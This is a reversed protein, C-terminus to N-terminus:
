GGLEACRMRYHLYNEYPVEAPVGHDVTPIYGGRARMPPLIARLHRDIAHKSQALVRKDIGGVMVLEPYQRGLEVVDCGSAVEFPCMVDMGMEQYLPIVLVAYGDTDVQVFLHRQPDLQRARINTVLQQYYPLLFARIMEPSILPRAKYCIDEDIYLEDITVHEQHRATVADALELWTQLRAHILEPMDYFACLLREPGFLCRLCMYCGIIEQQIILGRAAEARAESMREGLDAYREPVAPDLRWQVDREWSTTDVVPNGVYEPMFGDRRGKFYLVHRGAHDQVLELAGRDELVKVEYEPCYAPECGGLGRLTHHGPPDLGFLDVLPVDQPMGQEKWRELSYYGMDMRFLPAGPTRAYTDRLKRASPAMRDRPVMALVGDQPRGEVMHGETRRCEADVGGSARATAQNDARM